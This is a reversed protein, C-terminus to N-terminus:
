NRICGQLLCVEQSSKGEIPQQVKDSLSRKSLHSFPCDLLVPSKGQPSRVVIWQGTDPVNAWWNPKEETNEIETCKLKQVLQIKRKCLCPSRCQEAGGNEGTHCEGIQSMTSSNKQLCESFTCSDSNTDWEQGVTQLDLTNTPSQSGSTQASCCQNLFPHTLLQTSTWRQKPDRRFCKQLFDLAQPALSQPMPLLDDTCAIQYMAALPNSINSWPPRDTAMEVVTCGLSWIDSPPGQEVHKVVEPAMWLPTGRVEVKESGDGGSIRKASGFDAIKVGSSGLLVNRGKIDCHVIGHSHLYEIGQLISRTYTRILSEDLRGGFKKLVDAISGGPMYEMFLNFVPVGDEQSYDHGLCRVAYPTDLHQFISLENEMALMASRTNCVMSKVAFLQGNTSNMALNVTGFTGAGLISGRVWKSYVMEM